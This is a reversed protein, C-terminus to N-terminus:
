NIRSNSHPMSNGCNEVLTLGIFVVVILGCNMLVCLIYPTALALTPRLLVSGSDIFLEWVLVMCGSSCFCEAARPALTPRLTCFSDFLTLGLLNRSCGLSLLVFHDSIMFSLRMTTVYMIGSILM